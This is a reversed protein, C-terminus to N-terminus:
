SERANIEGVFKADKYIDNAIFCLRVQTAILLCYDDAVSELLRDVDM